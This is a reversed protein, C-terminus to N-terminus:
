PQLVLLVYPAPLMLGIGAVQFKAGALVELVTDLRAWQEPKYRSAPYNRLTYPRKHITGTDDRELKYMVWLPKEQMSTLMGAQFRKSLTEAYAAAREAYTARESSM